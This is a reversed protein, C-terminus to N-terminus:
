SCAGSASPAQHPTVTIALDIEYDAGTRQLLTEYRYGTARASASLARRLKRAAQRECAAGLLHLTEILGVRFTNM